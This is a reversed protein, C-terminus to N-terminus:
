HIIEEEIVVNRDSYVYAVFKGPVNEEWICFFVVVYGQDYPPLAVDDTCVGQPFNAYYPGSNAVEKGPSNNSDKEFIRIHILPLPKM